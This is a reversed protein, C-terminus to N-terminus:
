IWKVRGISEEVLFTMGLAFHERKQLTQTSKKKRKRKRKKFLLNCVRGTPRLGRGTSSYRMTRLAKRLLQHKYNYM